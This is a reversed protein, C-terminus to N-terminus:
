RSDQGSSFPSEAPVFPTTEFDFSQETETGVMVRTFLGWLLTLLLAVIPLLWIKKDSKSHM